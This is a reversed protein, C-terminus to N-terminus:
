AQVDPPSIPLSSFDTLVINDEDRAIKLSLKLAKFDIAAHNLFKWNELECNEKEPSEEDQMADVIASKEHHPDSTASAQFSWLFGIGVLALITNKLFSM